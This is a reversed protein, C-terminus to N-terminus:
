KKFTELAVSYTTGEVALQAEAFEEKAEQELKELTKYRASFHGLVLQKVGAAKALSAAQRATTHRTKQARELLDDGFTAEHYLLDVERLMDALEPLYQTDASYAFSRPNPPDVTLQDNPIVEGDPTIYDKGAKIGPIALLPIEYAVLAPKRVNRLRPQERFIFGCTPVRHQVPFSQVTVRKDEHIIQPQTFDLPIYCVEFRHKAPIGELQSEILAELDAPALITLPKNRGLLIMSTLLGVLGFYHDGHLHSIFIHDIRQFRFRYKRLQMQTGEGCDILYYKENVNLVHASPHRTATPLASSSGLVTLSFEM